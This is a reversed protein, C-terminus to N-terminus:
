MYKDGTLLEIYLFYIENKAVLDSLRDHNLRDQKGHNQFLAV